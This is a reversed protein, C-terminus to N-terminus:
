QAAGQALKAARKELRNGESDICVPDNPFRIKLKRSKRSRFSVTGTNGCLQAGNEWEIVYTCRVVHANRRKCRGADYGTIPQGRDLLEQAIDEALSTMVRDAKKISLTHADAAPAVSMACVLALLAGVLLARSGPMRRTM